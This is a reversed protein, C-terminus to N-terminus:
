CIYMITSLTMTPLPAPLSARAATPAEKGIMKRMTERIIPTVMPALMM